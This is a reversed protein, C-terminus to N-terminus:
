GQGEDGKRYDASLIRSLPMTYEGKPRLTIFTVSDPELRTVTANVQALREDESLFMLRISRGHELSYRLFREM